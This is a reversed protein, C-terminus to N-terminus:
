KSEGLVTAEVTVTANEMIARAKKRAEEARDLPSLDKKPNKLRQAMEPTAILQKMVVDRRRKTEHKLRMATHIETRWEVSERTALAPVEDTIGEAALIQNCRFEIIDCEVLESILLKTIEDEEINQGSDFAKLRDYTASRYQAYKTKYLDLEIPCDYGVPHRRMIALPCNKMYECHDSCTKIFTAHVGLALKEVAKQLQLLEAQNLVVDDLDELGYNDQLYKTLAPSLPTTVTPDGKNSPLTPPKTGRM